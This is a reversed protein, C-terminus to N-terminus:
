LRHSLLKISLDPYAERLQKIAAKALGSYGGVVIMGEVPKVIDIAQHKVHALLGLAKMQAYTAEYCSKFEDFGDSLVKVYGRLQEAVDGRLEANNGLKVELIVFTFEASGANARRLALLDLRERGLSGGQVQRDIIIFDDRELNDTILMQEFAIEEGYNRKRIESYLRNLHSKSLFARLLDSSITYTCYGNRHTPAGFRDTDFVPKTGVAACPAKDPEAFVGHIEILYPHKDVRVKALSNGKYYLNFYNDRLRLDLEGHEREIREILFAFDDAVRALHKDSISRRIM